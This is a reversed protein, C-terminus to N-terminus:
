LRRAIQDYIAVIQRVCDLARDEPMVALTARINREDPITTRLTLVGRLAAFAEWTEEPLDNQPKIQLLHHVFADGLREKLSGTGALRLLAQHFTEWAFVM